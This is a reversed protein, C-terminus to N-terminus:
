SGGIFDMDTVCTAKAAAAEEKGPLLRAKKRAVSPHQAEPEPAHGDPSFLLRKKSNTHPLSRPPHPARRPQQAPAADPNSARPQGGGDVGPSPTNDADADAKKSPIAASPPVTPTAPGLGDSSSAGSLGSPTSPGSSETDEDHTWWNVEAAAAAGEGAGGRGDPDEEQQPQQKMCRTVRREVPPTSDTSCARSVATAFTTFARESLTDLTELPVMANGFLDELYTKSDPVHRWMTKVVNVDVLARYDMAAFLEMKQGIIDQLLFHLKDQEQRKNSNYAASLGTPLRPRPAVAPTVAAPLKCIYARAHGGLARALPTPSPPFPHMHM